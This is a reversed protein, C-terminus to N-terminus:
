SEILLQSPDALLGSIKVIFRAADAGNIVRHDYSLSLPLMLRPKPEGNVIRLQERSRSMGLIAVEPWNVIPTFSTGGIGGLNSITFCGGQFDAPSLKRERARTALADLERAIEIVSKQNVDRIVPVVLGQETDVAVGVHYYNKYIIENTATDISSNFQPYQKLAAVVAKIALVTMTIKTGTKNQSARKRGAELETVDALDHQTVHPITQWAFSLNNAATKAIKNMAKREIEGFQTFDPLPPAVPGTPAAAANPSKTEGTMIKRVFEQLDEITIRGGPGSGSVLHLDVGLERAL